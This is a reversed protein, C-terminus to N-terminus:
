FHVEYFFRWKDLYFTVTLESFLLFLDIFSVTIVVLYEFIMCFLSCDFQCNLNFTVYIKFDERAGHYRNSPYYFRGSM